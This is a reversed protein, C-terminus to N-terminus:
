EGFAESRSCMLAVHARDIEALLDDVWGTLTVADTVGCTVSLATCGDKDEDAVPGVIRLRADVGRRRVIALARIADELGKGPVGRGVLIV